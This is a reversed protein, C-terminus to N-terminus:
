KVMLLNLLHERLIIKGVNENVIFEIKTLNSM